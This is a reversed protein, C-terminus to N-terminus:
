VTEDDLNCLTVDDQEITYAVHDPIRVAAKTGSRPPLGLKGWNKLNRDPSALRWNDEVRNKKPNWVPRDPENWPFIVLEPLGIWYSKAKRRALWRQQWANYDEKIPYREPALDRLDRASLCSIVDPESSVIAKRLDPPSYLPTFIIPWGREEDLYEAFRAGSLSCDDVV